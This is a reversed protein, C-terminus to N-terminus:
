VSTGGSRSRAPDSALPGVHLDISGGPDCGKLSSLMGRVGGAIIDRVFGKLPVARGDVRLHVSSPRWDCLFKAGVFDAVSRADNLGFLPVGCAPARDAVMAVLHDAPGCLPEPHVSERYVEIKPHVDRKYGESLILDVDTLARSRLEDLSWDHDADRIVAILSPSSVAVTHAGARKLRWSDKGEHDVDFGHVDHKVVAVRLGRSKLEPLLKELFTTKGSGSRGVVSLVPVM